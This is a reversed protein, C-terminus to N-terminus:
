KRERRGGWIANEIDKGQKDKSNLGKNKQYLYLISFFM